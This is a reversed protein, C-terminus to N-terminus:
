PREEKTQTGLTKWFADVATRLNELTGENDIVEDAAAAMEADSLQSRMRARSDEESLGAAALRAVRVGEPARVALVVDFMDLVGWQVLLAADVVMVGGPRERELEESRRVIEAVLPPRTCENLAELAEDSAFAIGALARRDLSGDPRLIGDGFQRVLEDLLPTGPAVLERAVEDAEIVDAGLERLRAAVESKGSGIGGTLGIRLM